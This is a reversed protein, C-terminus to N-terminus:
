MYKEITNKNGFCLEFVKKADDLGKGTRIQVILESFILHRVTVQGVDMNGNEIYLKLATLGVASDIILPRKNEKIAMKNEQM